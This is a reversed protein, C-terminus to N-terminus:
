AWQGTDMFNGDIPYHWAYASIVTPNNKEWISATFAQPGFERKEFDEFRVCDCEIWMESLDFGLACVPGHSSAENHCCYWCGNQFKEWDYIPRKNRSVKPRM